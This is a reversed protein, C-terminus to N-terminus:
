CTSDAAFRPGPSRDAVPARSPPETPAPLSSPLPPPPRAPRGTPVTLPSGLPTRRPKWLTSSGGALPAQGTDFLLAPPRALTLAQRLSQLRRSPPCPRAHRRRSSRSSAHPPRQRNRSIPCSLHRPAPRMPPLPAASTELPPASQHRRIRPTESPLDSRHRSIEPPSSPCTRLTSPPARLNRPAAGTLPLRAASTELPPGTVLRLPVPAEPPQYPCNITPGCPDRPRHLIM